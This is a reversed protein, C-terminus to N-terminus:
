ISTRAKQRYTRPSCDVIERFIRGFYGADDYGVGAAIDTISNDTLLLLEKAKLVRYRNLYDWLSLGTEMKFIRSLYSRSVGATWALETLSLARTFNQQIYALAHKVLASTPQPLTSPAMLIRGIEASSEQDSLVGKTQLFVKPS